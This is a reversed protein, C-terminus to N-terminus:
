TSEGISQVDPRYYQCPASWILSFTMGPVFHLGVVVKPLMSGGCCLTPLMKPFALLENVDWSFNTVPTFFNASKLNPVLFLVRRVAALIVCRRCCKISYRLLRLFSIFFQDSPYFVTSIVSKSGLIFSEESSRLHHLTPLMITNSSEGCNISLKVQWNIISIEWAVM